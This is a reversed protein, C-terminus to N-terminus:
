MHELNILVNSAHQSLVCLVPAGILVVLVQVGAVLCDYMCIDGCSGCSARWGFPWADVGMFFSIYGLVVLLHVLIDYTVHHATHASVAM